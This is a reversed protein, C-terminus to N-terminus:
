KELELAWSLFKPLCWTVVEESFLDCSPKPARYGPKLLRMSVMRPTTSPRNWRVGTTWVVWRMSIPVVVPWTAGRVMVGTPSFNKLCKIITWSKPSTITWWELRSIQLLLYFVLLIVRTPSLGIMPRSRRCSPEITYSWRTIDVRREWLSPTM